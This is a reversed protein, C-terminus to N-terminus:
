RGSDNVHMTRVLCSEGRIRPCENPSYSPRPFSLSLLAGSAM